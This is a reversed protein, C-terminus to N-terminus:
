RHGSTSRLTRELARAAAEIEEAPRADAETMQFLRGGRLHPPTDPFRPVVHAHFHPVKDGLVFAYAHDAGLAERQARQVRILLPGLARAEGDDLDYLGRVHRRSVVLVYGRVPSPEPFGYIVFTDDEHVIGGPPRVRGSAMDCVPCGDVAPGPARSV